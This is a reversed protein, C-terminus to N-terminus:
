TYVFREIRCIYKRKRKRKKRGWAAALEENAVHDADITHYHIYFCAVIPKVAYM